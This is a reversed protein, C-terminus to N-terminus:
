VQILSIVWVSSYCLQHCFPSLTLASFLSLFSLFLPAFGQSYQAPSYDSLCVNISCSHVYLVYGTHMKLKITINQQHSLRKDFMSTFLPFFFSYYLLVQRLVKTPRFEWPHGNYVPQPEVTSKLM